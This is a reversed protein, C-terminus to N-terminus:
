KHYHWSLVPHLKITAGTFQQHTNKHALLIMLQTQSPQQFYLKIATALLTRILILQIRIWVNRIRIWAKSFGTGTEDHDLNLIFFNPSISLQDSFAMNWNLDKKFFRPSGLDQILRWRELSRMLCANIKIKIKKIRVWTLDLDNSETVCLINM